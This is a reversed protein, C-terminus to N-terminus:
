PKSWQRRSTDITWWILRPDEYFIHFGFAVLRVANQVPEFSSRDIAGLWVLYFMLCLQFSLSTCSVLVSPLLVHLLLVVSLLVWAWPRLTWMCGTSSRESSFCIWM